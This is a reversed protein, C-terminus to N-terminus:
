LVNRPESPSKLPKVQAEETVICTDNPPQQSLTVGLHQRPRNSGNQGSLHGLRPDSDIEYRYQYGEMVDHCADRMEIIWRKMGKRNLYLVFLFVMGVFGLVLGLFVYSTQLSLDTIETQIPVICGIAKLGLGRLRTNTLGKPSACRVSDVDVQARSDNLWAVFSQIECTCSYPNNGLLIRINGLKELEKLDDTAFTRFANHKLDLAALNAMGSFTGSYVAVLSNNGLFLQQLNLLHSFMGPPLLALHNGSLDLRLLGRLDGWRLATTLDTLATFNYLSCSLNLEQLPSGPISLAEPHIISLQNGSLDLFRLNILTSFSHSAMETMGNNSLIVHSVNELETFSNPGIRQITNGTIIVTKAYGPIIQPVMLLNKSVCKLTHTVAFCDCGGPCESCRSQGCFLLGLLVCVKSICM